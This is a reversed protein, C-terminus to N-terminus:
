EGGDSQFRNIEAEDSLYTKVLNSNGDFGRGQKKVSSRQIKRGWGAKFISGM